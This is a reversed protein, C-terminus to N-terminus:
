RNQPQYINEIEPCAMKLVIKETYLVIGHVIRFGCKGYSKIVFFTYTENGSLFLLEYFTVYVRIRIFRTNLELNFNRKSLMLSHVKSKVIDCLTGNM